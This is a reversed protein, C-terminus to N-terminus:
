KKEYNILNQYEKSLDKNQSNVVNSVGNEITIDPMENPIFKNKVKQFIKSDKISEVASYAVITTLLDAKGRIVDNLEQQRGKIDKVSGYQIEGPGFLNMETAMRGPVTILNGVTQLLVSGALSSEMEGYEKSMKQWKNYNPVSNIVSDYGEKLAKSTSDKLNKGFSNPKLEKEITVKRSVGDVALYYNYLPDEKSKQIAIKQKEDIEKKVAKEEAFKKHITPEYKVLGKELAYEIGKEEIVKLSNNTLRSAGDRLTFNLSEKHALDDFIDDGVHEGFDVNSYDKGDSKLGITKDNKSYQNKFYDNTPRGLSELGKESGDPVTKQRGEFKGIVHSQEEALTGIVGAKTRNAPSKTNVLIYGIGTKKDVYATGNKIYKNGNKDVGILQPSNSPDTYIVKVKYGLDESVGEFAKAIDEQNEAIQLRSDIVNYITKAQRVEALQQLVNRSEKGQLNVTSDIAHYIDNIESKAKELDEKFKEPNKIYNITQSEINIDTKFDRDKTIETMSGLDKNIEAGSSKGIEVNGIVTNKTIGEQKRDSYNVGLSTIGSASVGVSGGVTKLKDVNELNYGVYEDISLKGSGTTGIAGATNEVKGVKLNSGDEIIFTTPSDVVRREGNTQSYSASGSPMGNPAISLSGGITSGKITSTNQKSEITLNQINGTVKGGEQNFGSLTMNKTNNHVEDVDVFRGNQYSTGNSNMKSQSASVKVADVSTQTGDGYGITVGTSIGSSRSSSSSYNNLEVAKKTINEVNNYIFKTNQAQTGIYEINKVNNYTISSNEDKGRITTVVASENHSNTKSSSKTYGFNVGADAYFNNTAQAAKLNDKGVTNDANVASTPLKTGQNSALGSVVGTVTNTSSAIGGLIDGSKMQKFSDVGQKARDVAESKIRVSLNFGSSNSSTEVDKVDKRAGFKVDGNNISINGHILNTATIDAGKNLTVNDGLVLNSKANTLDKEKLKSESKGYGISFGSSGIGGSLGKKKEELSYSSHLERSDTTLKGGIFSKDGLVLNSGVLNVDGKILGEGEVYLSGASNEENHITEKKSGSKLLSKYSSKKIEDEKDVKSEINLKDVNLNATKTTVASGSINLNSATTNLNEAKVVSGLNREFGYYNYQSDDKGFKQEGSVEQSKINIDKAVNINANKAQTIAGVSTYNNTLM